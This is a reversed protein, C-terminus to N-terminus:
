TLRVGINYLEQAQVDNSLDALGTSALPCFSAAYQSYSYGGHGPRSQSDRVSAEYVDVQRRISVGWSWGRLGYTVILRSPGSLESASVSAWLRVFRWHAPLVLRRAGVM